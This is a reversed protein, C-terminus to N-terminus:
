WKRTIEALADLTRAIDEADVDKHTVCRISAPGIAHIKVKRAACGAVLEATAAAAAAPTGGREVRFIVINTQVSLLDVALGPLKAVAEALAKANAHDEALRDVMRELAVIGAAAIIGAQRMGGGLMKRVRRAKAVLETSGCIVSGVPAALGKSVCFTVSDVDRVFDRAPRKLAVAANFLRAGDLHVPVSAEHAVAAIASIEEPTCCTGGHRNHTNEVCVLGTPPLHINAPRLAERVQDPTLFGRATKVPRMQVHGVVAAGAVEYNFIHSDLDLVVEQGTQTQSVVSILNGMTGSAVFLGAAKGLREAALAELRKVTPDEEWVDDGVAARAMADRMEPTPLTLTDSRLDVIDHM